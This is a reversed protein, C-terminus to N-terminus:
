ASVEEFWSDHRAPAWRSAFIRRDIREVLPALAATAAGSSEDAGLMQVLPLWYSPIGSRSLRLGLDLGKQQSGLYGGSFGGAILFAERPMICCEFSAAAVQTLNLGTVASLPYGAYRSSAPYESQEAPWSGAWRVSHDEYALTPSIVGGQTGHAAVLKGYWGARLPLLSGALLVVTEHSLARVGAELLDYLDGSEEAAMLKLSLRYFQALEKIRGAQRRFREAPLVLAIPALRTEPDLALLGLIPAMDGDESDEPAIIIPPGGAQEFPGADVSAGISPSTRESACLFPVIQRDVIEAIGWHQPDIASIQRLVALRPPVRIPTLPMFARRSDTLTLELHLATASDWGSAFAIFGHPHSGHGFASRFAPEDTFADTVDSRELRSWHDDLRTAAREGCLKVSQVHAEPDLLWGSILFAGRSVQFASDIGMRVPVPLASVTERGEFSNAASRLQLLVQPSGRTQLLLARIHGPTESPGAIQRHEHLPAYRWGGRGRYVLGEIDRVRLPEKTSLLGVFGSGGAPVDQRLFTAIGCDCVVPKGSNVAVRCVGPEIIRGWGKVFIVGDHTEGVLEVFGDSGKRSQLLAIIAALRRPGIPGQMLGDVLSDLLGGLQEGALEALLAAADRVPIPRPAFIYRKSGAEDEGLRLTTLPSDTDQMQLLAAFGHTASRAPSALRWGIISATVRTVDDNIEALLTGAMPEGTGIVLLFGEDIPCALVRGGKMIRTALQSALPLAQEVAVM